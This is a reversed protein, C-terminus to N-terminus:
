RLVEAYKDISAATALFQNRLEGTEAEVDDAARLERLQESLPPGRGYDSLSGSPTVPVRSATAFSRALAGRRSESVLSVGPDAMPM